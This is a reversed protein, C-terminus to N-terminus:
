SGVGSRTVASGIFSRQPTNLSLLRAADFPKKFCRVPQGPISPKSEILPSNPCASRRQSASASIGRMWSYSPIRRSLPSSFLKAILQVFRWAESEYGSKKMPRQTLLTHSHTTTLANRLVLDPCSKPATLVTKPCVGITPGYSAAPPSRLTLVSGSSKPNGSPV